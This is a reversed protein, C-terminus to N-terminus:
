AIRRVLNRSGRRVDNWLLAITLLLAALLTSVACAGIVTLWGDSSSGATLPDVISSIRDLVSAALPAVFDYVARAMAFLSAALARMFILITRRTEDPAGIVAGCLGALAGICGAIAIVVGWGLQRTSPISRSGPVIQRIAAMVRRSVDIEIRISRLPALVRDIEESSDVAPGIGDREIM